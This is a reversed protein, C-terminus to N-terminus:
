HPVLLHFREVSLYLSFLIRLLLVHLAGNSCLLLILFRDVLPLVFPLNCLLFGFLLFLFRLLHSGFFISLCGLFTWTAGAGLIDPARSTGAVGGTCVVALVFTNHLCTVLALTGGVVAWGPTTGPTALLIHLSTACHM